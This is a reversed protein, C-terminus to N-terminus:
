ELFELTDMANNVLAYCPRGPLRLNRIKRNPSCYCQRLLLMGRYTWTWWFTPGEGM